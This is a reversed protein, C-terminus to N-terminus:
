KFLQILIVAVFGVFTAFVFKRISWDMLDNPLKAFGKVGENDCQARETAINVNSLHTQPSLHTM